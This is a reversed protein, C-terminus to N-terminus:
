EGITYGFLCIGHDARIAIRRCNAGVQKGALGRVEIPLDGETSENGVFKHREGNVSLPHHHM